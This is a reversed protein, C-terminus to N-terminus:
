VKTDDQSHIKEYVERAVRLTDEHFDQQTMWHYYSPNDRFVDEVKRNRYKGFNFVMEGAENYIFKGEVDVVRRQMDEVFPHDDLEDGVTNGHSNRKSHVQEYLRTAVEKTDAPFDAGMMWHYFDPDEYFVEEAARGKYKGFNIIVRGQRVTFRRSADIMEDFPRGIFEYLGEVDRPLDKYRELQADLVEITALVDGEASHADALEKSCYFRYAATLDRPEKIHFIRQVDVLRCKLLNIKMGVRRLENQLMPIDFRIANFGGLDCGELFQAIVNAEQRLTPCDQVDQDTIGHVAAAEPDIPMEPNFRQLYSERRGSPHIKIMSLEVIRDRHPNKGTAEIDLFVIPRDLKLKM